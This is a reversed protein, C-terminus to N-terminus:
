VLPILIALRTQALLKKAADLTAQKRNPPKGFSKWEGKVFKSVRWNAPEREFDKVLRRILADDNISYELAGL